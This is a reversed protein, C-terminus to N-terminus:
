TDKRRAYEGYSQIIGTDLNLIRDCKSLTSIRHAVIVITCTGQLEYVAKMFAEETASDLASTAEDLILVEANQYLARAIALRQRQGGSMKVGRDGIEAELSEPHQKVFDSLQAREIASHIRAMDIPEGLTINEILSGSILYTNQPIYSLKKQWKRVSNHISIGNVSIGGGHPRLLGVLLDLLTSKGAGSKGAIGIIEGRNIVFSLANFIPKKVNYSYRLDSIKISEWNSFGITGEEAMADTYEGRDALGLYVRNLKPLNFRTMNYMAILRNVSPMLRIAAIGFISLTKVTDMSSPQTLLSYILVMLISVLAMVEIIIKPTFDYLKSSENSMVFGKSAREYNDIFYNECHRIKVYKINELLQQIWGIMQASYLNSLEGAERIRNRMLLVYICTLAGMIGMVIITGVPELIILFVSIFVIVLLEGSFQMLPGIFRNVLGASITYVDNFLNATNANAIGIYDRHVIAELLDKSIRVQTKYLVRMEYRKCLYLFYGKILFIGVLIVSCVIIFNEANKFRFFDYLISLTRSAKIVTQDMTMNLIPLILAISITEAAASLVLLFTLKLFSRKEDATLIAKFKKIVNDM